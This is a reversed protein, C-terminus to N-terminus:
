GAAPAFFQLTFHSNRLPFREFIPNWFRNKERRRRALIQWNHHNDDFYTTWWLQGALEGGGTKWGFARQPPPAYTLILNQEM